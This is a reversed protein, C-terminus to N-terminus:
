LLKRKLYMGKFFCVGVKWEGFCHVLHDLNNQGVRQLLYLTPVRVRACVCVHTRTWVCVYVSDSQLCQLATLTTFFYSTLIWSFVSVCLFLKLMQTLEVM